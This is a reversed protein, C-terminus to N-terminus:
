LSSLYNNILVLLYINVSQITRPIESKNIINVIIKNLPKNTNMYIINNRQLMLTHQKSLLHICINNM